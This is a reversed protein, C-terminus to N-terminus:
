ICCGVCGRDIVEISSAKASSIPRPHPRFILGIKDFSEVLDDYSVNLHKQNNVYCGQVGLIGLFQSVSTNSMPSPANTNRKYESYFGSFTDSIGIGVELYNKLIFVYLDNRGINVERAALRFIENKVVDLDETEFRNQLEESRVLRRIINNLYNSEKIDEYSRVNGLCYHFRTISFRCSRSM